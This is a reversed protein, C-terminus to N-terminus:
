EEWNLVPSAMAPVIYGASPDEICSLFLVFWTFFWEPNTSVLSLLRFAPIIWSPSYFVRRCRFVYLSRIPYIASAPIFFKYTYIYIAMYRLIFPLICLNSHLLNCLMLIIILTTLYRFVNGWIPSETRLSIWFEVPHLESSSATTSVVRLPAPCLPSSSFACSQNIDLPKVQDIIKYNCSIGEYTDM